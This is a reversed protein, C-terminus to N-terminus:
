EIFVFMTLMAKSLLTNYIQMDPHPSWAICIIIKPTRPKFLNLVVANTSVDEMVPPSQSWSVVETSTETHEAAVHEQLSIETYGM